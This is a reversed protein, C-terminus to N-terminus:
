TRLAKRLTAIRVWMVYLNGLGGTAVAFSFALLLALFRLNLKPKTFM